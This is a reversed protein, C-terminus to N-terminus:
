AMWTSSVAPIDVGDNLSMARAPTSISRVAYEPIAELTTIKNGTSKIVKMNAATSATYKLLSHHRNNRDLRETEARSIRAQINHLLEMSSRQKMNFTISLITAASKANNTTIDIVVFSGMLLMEVIHIIQELPPNAAIIAKARSPM